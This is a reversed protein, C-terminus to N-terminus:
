VHARGIKAIGDQCSYIADYYEEIQMKLHFPFELEFKADPKYEDRDPLRLTSLIYEPAEKFIQRYYEDLLREAEANQAEIEDMLEDSISEERGNPYDGDESLSFDPNDDIDEVWEDSFHNIQM